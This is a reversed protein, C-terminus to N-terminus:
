PNIQYRNKKFCIKFKLVQLILLKQKPNKVKYLKILFPICFYVTNKFVGNFIDLNIQINSTNIIDMEHQLTKITMRKMKDTQHATNKGHWRYYFTTKNVYKLKGIKSLQLMLWYDELPAQMTYHGIKNFVSRKVLYGNPVHNGKLLNEYSGFKSSQLNIQQDLLDTFSLYKAEDKRYVINRTNDWYCIKSNSDIIENRGVVLVYEPSVSLFNYLTETSIISLKDDSALFQIYHGSSLEILRNLTLCIGQNNQTEFITKVFREECQGRMENIIQWTNDISGDDIIVLEIHPYSQEIVSQIAERIYQEHNYAPIIVSVLEDTTM